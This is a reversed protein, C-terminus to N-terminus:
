EDTKVTPIEVYDNYKALFRTGTACYFNSLSDNYERVAATWRDSVEQKAGQYGAFGGIAGGTAAGAITAKARAENSLDVLAGDDAGREFPTFYLTEGSAQTIEEGVSGDYNRRYYRPQYMAVLSDYESVKYGSIKKKLNDFVAYAYSDGGSSPLIAEHVVYYINDNNQQRAVPNIIRTFKEPGKEYVDDLNLWDPANKLSSVSKLGKQQSKLMIRNLSDKPEQTCSKVCRDDSVDIPDCLSADCRWVNKVNTDVFYIFGGTKSSYKYENAPSAIRIKGMVCDKEVGDVLCKATSLVSNGGSAGAAMNGIVMGTAANVATSKITDGAVKGTYTSAAMIGAGATAGIATDILQTKSTGLLKTDGAAKPALMNGAVGSIIAAAAIKLGANQKQEINMIQEVQALTPAEDAPLEVDGLASLWGSEPFMDINCKMADGSALTTKALVASTNADRLEVEAICQSIPNRRIGTEPIGWRFIGSPYIMSCMELDSASVTGSANNLIDKALDKDDVAVPLDATQSNTAVTIQNQSAYEAQQRVNMVQNYSNAYSGSKKVTIRADAPVTAVCALM